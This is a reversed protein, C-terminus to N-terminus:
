GEGVWLERYATLLPSHFFLAFMAKEGKARRVRLLQQELLVLLLFYYRPRYYGPYFKKKANAKNSKLERINKSGM